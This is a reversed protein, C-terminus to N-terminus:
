GTIVVVKIDAELLQAIVSPTEPKLKLAFCYDLRQLTAMLRKRVKNEM